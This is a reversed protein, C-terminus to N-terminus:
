KRAGASFFAEAAIPDDEYVRASAIEGNLIEYVVVRSWSFSENQAIRVLLFVRHDGAVIDLMEPRFRGGSCSDQEAWFSIIGDRGNWNGHLPGSGPYCFVGNESFLAAAQERKGQRFLDFLQSILASNRDKLHLEKKSEHIQM